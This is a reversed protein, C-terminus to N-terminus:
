AVKETTSTANRRDVVKFYYYSIALLINLVALITPIVFM